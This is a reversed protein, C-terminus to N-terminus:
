NPLSIMAAMILVYCLMYRQPIISSANDCSSILKLIHSMNLYSVKALCGTQL